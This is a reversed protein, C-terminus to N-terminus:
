LTEETTMDRLEKTLGGEQRLLGLQPLSSPCRCGYSDDSDGMDGAIEVYDVRM